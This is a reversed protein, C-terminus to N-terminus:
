VKAAKHPHIPSVPKWLDTQHLNCPRQVRFNCFGKESLITQSIRKPHLATVIHQLICVLDQEAEDADATPPMISVIENLLRMSPSAQRYQMEAILKRKLLVLGMVADEKENM